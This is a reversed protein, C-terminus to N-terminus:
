TESERQEKIKKLRPKGRQCMCIYIMYIVSKDEINEKKGM